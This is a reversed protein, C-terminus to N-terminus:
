RRGYTRFVWYLGVFTLAILGVGVIWWVQPTEVRVRIDVSDSTEEAKATITMEYDGAIADGSPTVRATVTEVAGAEISAITAPEFEVKWDTPTRSSLEVNAIPASGTNTVTMALDKTSGANATMSLVQDPTLVVLSYTGTITVGLDISATEGGGAVSVTIPYTGAAVDSPANATVKITGTGGADVTTSTAQAQGSPEASVDWGPPGVADMTFSAEAATDNHITVNFSFATDSPGRLEPFDTTLTVDGAAQENVRITVPLRDAAAGAGKAVVTITATGATAEAPIDVALEVAPPDKPDVYVGDIVLGGGRFEATWGSPVGEASLDVRGAEAVDIALDFSATSDPEAVVAPFPTTVTLGGAAVAVPALTGGVLALLGLVLALRSLPRAQRTRRPARDSVNM